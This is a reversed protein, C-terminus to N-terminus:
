ATELPLGLLANRTRRIVANVEVAYEEPEKGTNGHVIVCVDAAMDMLALKVGHRDEGDIHLTRLCHSGIMDPTNWPGTEYIDGKVYGMGLFAANLQTARNDLWGLLDGGEGMKNVADAALQRCIKDVTEITNLWPRGSSTPNPAGSADSFLSDM